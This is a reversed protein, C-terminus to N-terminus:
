NCEMTGDCQLRAGEQSEEEEGKGEELLEEYRYEYKIGDIIVHM